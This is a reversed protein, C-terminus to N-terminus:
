KIDLIEKFNDDKIYVAIGKGSGISNFHSKYGDIGLEERDLWTETLTIIISKLITQDQELDIHNNKLNM